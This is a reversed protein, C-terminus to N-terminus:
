KKLIDKRNERLLKNYLQEINKIMTSLDYAPYVRRKGEEGMKRAPEKDMLLKIIAEAMAYADGQPFLIGNVGDKVLDLIGGVNSAVIPKGMAMAEVLVRGMGENLSPLAFIDFINILSPIDSRWGAFIVKEKIGMTSAQNILGEMLHGDGVLLFTVEPIKDLVLRAADILYRHGKIEVLRGVTGVISDTLPIGLNRKLEDDIGRDKSLNELRVGSPIVVFKHQKAVNFQIHELKEKETLTIIRDTISAMLKELLVFFKTKVKGYYAYFIHGHPTHVVVPVRAFFSALRGLIGAKSTHTHVIDPKEQRIIKYLKFLAKLDIFPSIRRILSSITILKVNALEAQRLGKDVSEKEESSMESEISLGKVLVVDYKNKDLGLTTLLTNEASGGKDL